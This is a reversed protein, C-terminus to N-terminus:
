TWIYILVEENPIGQVKHTDKDNNEVVVSCDKRTNATIRSIFKKKRAVYKPINQTGINLEEQTQKKPIVLEEVKDHEMNQEVIITAEHKYAHQQDDDKSM